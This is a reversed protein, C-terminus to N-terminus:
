RRGFRKRKKSSDSKEYNSRGDERRGGVNHKGVSDVIQNKDIALFHYVNDLVEDTKDRFDDYLIIHVHEFADLYAKVMKYYLGMDKYMVMPTLNNDNELGALLM